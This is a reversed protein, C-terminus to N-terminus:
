KNINIYLKLIEKHTLVRLNGCLLKEINLGAFTIRIIKLIPTRLSWFINIIQRHKGTYLNVKFWSNELKTIGLYSITLIHLYYKELFNITKYSPIGKVKVIYIKHIKCHPHMLRNVLLKDSSILMIGRSHYDLRGILHLLKQHYINIYNRITIYKKIYKLTSLTKIPKNFIFYNFM